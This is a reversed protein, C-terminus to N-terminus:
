CTTHLIFLVNKGQQRLHNYRRCAEDSSLIIVQTGRLTFPNFVFQGGSKQPFGKGGEGRYGSGILLIDPRQRNLFIRDRNNFFHKKDVLRFSGDPCIMLDFFPIPIGRYSTWGYRHSVINDHRHRLYSGGLALTGLVAASLLIRGGWRRRSLHFLLFFVGFGGLTLLVVTGLYRYETLISSFNLLLFGLVILLVWVSPAHRLDAALTPQRLRRWASSPLDAHVRGLLLITMGILCGWADKAIDSPDFVRSSMFAQFGEDFASCFVALGFTVLLIRALPVGRPSLDRYTMVAFITYALYHWNQQLEYFRHGFYVDTSRQGLGIMGLALLGTLVRRRTFRPRVLALFALALAGAVVPVIPIAQHGLTFTSASARGIADQLFARLMIFPTCILLLAFLILQLRPSQMGGPVPSRRSHGASRGM